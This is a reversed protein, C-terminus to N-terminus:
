PRLDAEVRSRIAALEAVREDGRPCQWRAVFGRPRGIVSMGIPSLVSIRGAAPESDNPLCLTISRTQGSGAERLVIECHLAAIDSPLEDAPVVTADDLLDDLGRESAGASRGQPNRARLAELRAYDRECLVRDITQGDM